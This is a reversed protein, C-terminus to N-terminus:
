MQNRRQNFKRAYLVWPFRGRSVTPPPTPGSQWERYRFAGLFDVTPLTKVNATTGGNPNSIPTPVGGSGQNQGLIAISGSLNYDTDALGVHGTPYASTGNFVVVDGKKVDRLNTILDFYQTGGYSTNSNRSVTWIESAYHNPGTHPYGTPFGINWWLEAVLDWCQDGYYGDADYGNGAVANKFEEYSGIPLTVYGSYFAM